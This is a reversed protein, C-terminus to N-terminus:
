NCAPPDGPCTELAIVEDLEDGETLAFFESMGKAIKKKTADYGYAILQVDANPVLDVFQMGTTDCDVKKPEGQQQAATSANYFLFVEIESIGATSCRGAGPLTWDVNIVAPKQKLEIVTTEASKGESVNHKALVGLYTGKGATTFAEVEIKYSGPAIDPLTLTGSTDATPCNGSAVAIEEEGKIARAEVKTVGRTGCTASTPGHNWKVVIEGPEVPDDGCAALSFAGLALLCSAIRLM